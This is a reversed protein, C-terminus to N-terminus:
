KPVLIVDKTTKPLRKGFVVESQSLYLLCAVHHDVSDVPEPLSKPQVVVRRQPVRDPSRIGQPADVDQVGPECAGGIHADVPPPLPHSVIDSSSSTLGTLLSLSLLNHTLSAPLGLHTLGEAPKVLHVM